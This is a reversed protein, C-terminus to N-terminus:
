GGGTVASGGTVGSGSFLTVRQVSRKKMVTPAEYDSRQDTEVNEVNAKLEDKKIERIM